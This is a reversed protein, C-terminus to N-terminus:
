GKTLKILGFGDVAAINGRWLIGSLPVLQGNQIFSANRVHFQKLVLHRDKGDLANLLTKREVEGTEQYFKMSKEAADPDLSLTFIRGLEAYFTQVSIMTGTIIVGNLSLTADFENLNKEIGEILNFFLRDNEVMQINSNIKSPETM